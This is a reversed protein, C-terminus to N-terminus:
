YFIMIMRKIEDKLFIEISEGKGGGDFFNILKFILYGFKRLSFLKTSMFGKKDLNICM